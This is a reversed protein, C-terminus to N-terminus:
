NRNRRKDNRIRELYDYVAKRVVQSPTTLNANAYAKLETAMKDDM